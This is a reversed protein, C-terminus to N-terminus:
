GKLLFTRGIQFLEACYEENPDENPVVDTASRFSLSELKALAGDRLRQMNLM